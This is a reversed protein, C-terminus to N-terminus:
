AEATQVVCLQRKADKTRKQWGADLANWSIPSMAATCRLGCALWLGMYSMSFFPLLNTLLHEIRGLRGNGGDLDNACNKADLCVEVLPVASCTAEAPVPLPLFRSKVCFTPSSWDSIRFDLACCLVCYACM